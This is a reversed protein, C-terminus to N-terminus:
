NIYRMGSVQFRLHFMLWQICISIRYKLYIKYTLAGLVEQAHYKNRMNKNDLIARFTCLIIQAKPSILSAYMM